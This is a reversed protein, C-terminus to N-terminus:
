MEGGLPLAKEDLRKVETWLYTPLKIFGTEM